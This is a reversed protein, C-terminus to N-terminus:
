LGSGTQCLEEELCRHKRSEIGDKKERFKRMKWEELGYGKASGGSEERKCPRFCALSLPSSLSHTKRGTM